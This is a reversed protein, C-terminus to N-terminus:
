VFLILSKRIKLEETLYLCGFHLFESLHAMWKNGSIRPSDPLILNEGLVHSPREYRLPM